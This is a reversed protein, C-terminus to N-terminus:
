SRRGPVERQRNDSRSTGRREVTGRDSMQDTWSSGDWYRQLGASVPDPYWGPSAVAARAAGPRLLAATAVAPASYAAAAGMVSVMAMTAFSETGGEGDSVGSGLAYILAMGVVALVPAAVATVVVVLSGTRPRAAVLVALLGLLISLSWTWPMDTENDQSIALWFVAGVALLALAALIRRRETRPTSSTAAAHRFRLILAVGFLVAISGVILIQLWLM